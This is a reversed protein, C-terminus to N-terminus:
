VNSNYLKYQMYDLRLMAAHYCNNHEYVAALQMVGGGGLGVGM